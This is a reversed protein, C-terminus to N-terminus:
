VIFVRKTPPLFKGPTGSFLVFWNPPNFISLSIRFIKMPVGPKAYIWLSNSFFSSFIYLSLIQKFFFAASAEEAHILACLPSM